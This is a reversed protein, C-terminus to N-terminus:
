TLQELTPMITSTFKGLTHRRYCAGGGGGGVCWVGGHCVVKGRVVECVQVCWLDNLSM